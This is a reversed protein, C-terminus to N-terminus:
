EQKPVQECLGFRVSSRNADARKDPPKEESPGDGIDAGKGMDKDLPMPRATRGGAPCAVPKQGDLPFYRQIGGM